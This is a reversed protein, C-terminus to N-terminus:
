CQSDGLEFADVSWCWVADFRGRRRWCDRRPSTRAFESFTGDLTTKVVLEEIDIADFVKELYDEVDEFTYYDIVTNQPPNALQLILSAAISAFLLGIMAFLMSLRHATVSSAEAHHHHFRFM